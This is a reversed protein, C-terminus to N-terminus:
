AAKRKGITMATGDLLWDIFEPWLVYAFRSRFFGLHGIPRGGADVPSIWREEIPANEYRKMLAAVARPTGWIDDTLGLALIPTRVNKYRATETLSPDGFFYDKHRCWRAWDRFVSAPIPEGLGMWRPMDAFLFSLPVGVLSMRPGAWPDDLGKLYGSMTAVMGYRKFRGSIGCLGLAQGGFSQGVGVMHHGPAIADLAAAATPLDILAWDKMNIRAKWGKPQVSGGTGRYDYVLAARAGALVSATAFAAYLGRPVATASSILVLPKDGDGEFLTGALPFGDPSPITIDRQKVASAAPRRGRDGSNAETVQRVAENRAPM